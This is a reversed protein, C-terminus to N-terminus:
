RRSRRRRTAPSRRSSRTWWARITWPLPLVDLAGGGSGAAADRPRLNFAFVEAAAVTAFARQMVDNYNAPDVNVNASLAGFQDTWSAQVDTSSVMYSLFAEAGERNGGDNSIVFGDM